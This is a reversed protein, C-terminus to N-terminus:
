LGLLKEKSYLNLILNYTKYKGYPLIEWEFENMDKEKILKFIIYDGKTKGFKDARKINEFM